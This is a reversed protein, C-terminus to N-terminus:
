RDDMACRMGSVTTLRADTARRLIRQAREDSASVCALSVDLRRLAARVDAVAVPRGTVLRLLMVRDRLDQAPVQLTPLYYGRPVVAFPGVSSIALIEMQDAPMLWLGPGVDLRQAARVDSLAAQDVKWTPHRTLSAGPANWLWTGAVFTIAVTVAVAMWDFIHHWLRAGAAEFPLAVLLGVLVWTPMGIALRWAVAGAGTLADVLNFVGPLLTAMTAIAGCGMLVGARAPILLPTWAVALLGLLAMPVSPNFALLFAGSPPIMANDGGGAITAPGLVQVLGNLLPAAVFAVSGLALSRSRLLFAAVLASGAIVPALLASTTTLGVFAIGLSILTIVDHRRLRQTARGLFLWTMPVLVACATAKGQWIRGLSYNGIISTASALLFLMAIAMVLSWRRPAWARVLRWTTWGALAGLVPVALLYCFTPAQVGLAHALAGQAAEVSPTPIGGSYAPPFVDPGFMTDNLAATGHTAVWTARNVYFTDDADPRLLLCGLLGFGLSLAGAFLHSTWAPGTGASRFDAAVEAAPEGVEGNTAAADSRWRLAGVLRPWLQVVLLTITIVAVPWAGWRKLGLACIALAVSGCVLLPWRIFRSTRSPRPAEQSAADNWVQLVRVAVVLVTLLIWPWGAWLMSLQLAMSLQYFVTWIAFSLVGADCVADIVHVGRGGLM